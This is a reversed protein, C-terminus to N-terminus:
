AAECGARNKKKKDASFANGREGSDACQDEYASQWEDDESATERRADGLPRAMGEDGKQDCGRGGRQCAKDIARRLRVDEVHQRDTAHADAQRLLCGGEHEREKRRPVSEEYYGGAGRGVARTRAQL